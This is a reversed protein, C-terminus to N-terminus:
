RRRIGDRLADLHLAGGAVRLGIAYAIVGVSGTLLLGTLTEGVLLRAGFAVFGITLAAIAAATFAPRGITHVHLTRQAQWNPLLAAVMITVAWVIGAATIGYTPVFLLNGGLNVALFVLTNFMAQRSRGSMLIASGAPGLPSSALM